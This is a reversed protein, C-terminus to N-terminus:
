KILQRSAIWASSWAHQFNFGGTIGDVDLIEGAFFLGPAIKSEMTAPEIESLPVGGATVFEEKFTTKGQVCIAYRLLTGTLHNETRGTLDAWRDQIGIGAQQLLFTWLRKPLHFPCHSSIYMKPANKIRELYIERLSIDHHGPLWNIQAPFKYARAALSAAGWASARLVAPGSLGWHTVLLPGQERIKAEPIEVVAEPVSIGSLTCIPHHPLNFTFLSPVPSQISHGTGLLWDYQEQKPYGGASILVRDALYHTDDSFQVLWKKDAREIKRVAKHYRIDVQNKHIERLLCEMITRSDNSVPFLRGDEEVKLPVGRERFWQVTDEAHFRALTKRLLQWGRPYYRRPDAQPSLDHTVNCRGGGSVKVKQLPKGTKEFLVTERGERFPLNAAAFCGAAGAGIIATNM